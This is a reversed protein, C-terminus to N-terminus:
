IPSWTVLGVLVVSEDAKSNTKGEKAAAESSYYSFMGSSSIVRSALFNQAKCLNQLSLLLDGLPHKSHPSVVWKMVSEGLLLLEVGRILVVVVVPIVGTVLAITFLLVAEPVVLLLLELLHHGM